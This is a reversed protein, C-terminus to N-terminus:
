SGRFICVVVDNTHTQTHICIVRYSEKETIFIVVMCLYMVLFHVFWFCLNIKMRKFAVFSRCSNTFMWEDFDIKATLILPLLVLSLPLFSLILCILDSHERTNHLFSLSEWFCKKNRSSQKSSNKSANRVFIVRAKKFDHQM